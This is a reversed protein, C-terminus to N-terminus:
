HGRSVPRTALPRAPGEEDPSADGTPPHVVTPGARHSDPPQGSISAPEARLAALLVLGWGIAGVAGAINLGLALPSDRYRIPDAVAVQYLIAVVTGGAAILAAGISLPVRRGIVDARGRAGLWATGVWGAAAVMATAITGIAIPPLTSYALVVQLFTAAMLAVWIALGLCGVAAITSRRAPGGWRQTLGIPVLVAGVATVAALAPGGIIVLTYITSILGSGHRFVAIAAGTISGLVDSVAILVFGVLVIASSPVGRHRRSLLVAPVLVIASGVLGGEVANTLATPTWGYTSLVSVIRTAVTIIALGVFVHFGVGRGPTPGAAPAHVGPDAGGSGAAQSPDGVFIPPPGERSWV